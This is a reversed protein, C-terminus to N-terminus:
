DMPRCGINLEGPQPPSSRDIPSNAAGGGEPTGQETERRCGCFWLKSVAAAGLGQNQPWTPNKNAAQFLFPLLTSQDLSPRAERADTCTYMM